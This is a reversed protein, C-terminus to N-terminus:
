RSRAAGGRPAGGAGCLGTAGGVHHTGGHGSGLPTRVGLRGVPPRLALGLLSRLPHVENGVEVWRLAGGHLM